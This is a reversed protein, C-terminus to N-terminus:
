LMLKQHYVIFGPDNHAFGTYTKNKSYTPCILIITDFIGKFPGRLQDILYKTKGCNTPGVIISHFPTKDKLEEM